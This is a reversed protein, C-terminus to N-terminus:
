SLGLGSPLRGAQGGAGTGQKVKQRHPKPCTVEGGCAEIEEDTLHADDYCRAM